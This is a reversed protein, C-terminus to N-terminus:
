FVSINFDSQLREQFQKIVRMAMRLAEHEISSLQKPKILKDPPDGNQVQNIQHALLMEMLTEYAERVSPLSERSLMEHRVLSNLRELTNRAGVGAHLAYIRAADALIRLGNRKIDIKGKGKGKGKAKGKGKEKDDAQTILRNFLGLPPRGEADDQVMMALLRSPTRIAEFVHKRLAVTLDDDGYLTDFDLVINAWRAAKETPQEIVHTLQRKWEGLSKSYEPNSAMINGPCLGYGVEDLHQNVRESFTQFWRRAKKTQAKPTDAVILGNDQDPNLMMERRAGSGMIILVFPAPPPGLDDHQMEELTLEVCRRQLALHFESVIRSAASARRNGDLAESALNVIRRRQIALEAFNDARTVEALVSGQHAILNQLVDTQSIMGLPRGDELVMVYKIAPDQLIEEVEWVPAEPSVVRPAECAVRMVNDDSDAGRVLVAESLGAYTLVGILRGDTDTVGLSGIRREHMIAFAEALTVEPGCTVLPSKMIARAPVSRVRSTTERSIRRERMRAAMVRHVVAVLPAPCTQELTPLDEAPVMLLQVPSLAQATMTYPSGDVAGALGVFDGSGVTSTQGTPRRLELGGDVLVYIAKQYADGAGFLTEGPALSVLRMCEALRAYAEDDLGQFVALKSLREPTVELTPRDM